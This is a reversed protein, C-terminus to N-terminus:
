LAETSTESYYTKLMTVEGVFVFNFNIIMTQNTSPVYILCIDNNDDLTMIYPEPNCSLVSQAWTCNTEYELIGENKIDYPRLIVYPKTDCGICGYSQEVKIRCYSPSMFLHDFKINSIMINAFGNTPIKRKIVYDGNKILNLESISPQKTRLLRRISPEDYMAKAECTLSVIEPRSTYFTTTKKNLSLQQEGIMNKVPMNIQAADVDYGINGNLLISDKVHVTEHLLSMIAIPLDLLGTLNMHKMNCTPNNTNLTSVKRMGDYDIVVDTEWIESVKNYIKYCKNHDPIVEWRYWTCSVQATCHADCGIVGDTCGYGHPNDTHKKLSSHVYGQYCTGGYYCDGWAAKCSYTSTTKLMYDCTYYSAQYRVIVNTNRLHIKLTKGEPTNFCVVQGNKISLQYTSIEVCSAENCIKGKTTLYLTKDCCSALSVMCLVMVTTTYISHGPKKLGYKVTRLDNETPIPMKPRGLINHPSKTVKEELIQLYEVDDSENEVCIKGYLPEDGTLQKRLKLRRAMIMDNINKSKTELTRFIIPNMMGTIKNLTSVKKARGRDDSTIMHVIVSNTLKILRQKFCTLTLSTVIFFIIIGVTVGIVIPANTRCMEFQQNYTCYLGCDKCEINKILSGYENDCWWSVLGFVLGNHAYGNEGPYIEMRENNNISVNCNKYGKIVMRGYDVTISGGFAWSSIAILVFAHITYGM